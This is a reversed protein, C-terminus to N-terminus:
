AIKASFDAEAAVQGGVTAKGGFKWVGLRSREVQVELHLEDGPRVPRRFRAGEISMFYVPRGRHDPALGAIALVAATQAMAEITLVGPMIPDGPFHGQFFWENITVQKIGVARQFARMEVVRDVLLFPYRHPIMRMVAQVDADPLVTGPVISGESTDM